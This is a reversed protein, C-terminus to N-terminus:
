DTQGDEEKEGFCCYNDPDPMDLCEGSCYYVDEGVKRFHICDRCRVVEVADVTPVYRLARAVTEKIQPYYNIRKM